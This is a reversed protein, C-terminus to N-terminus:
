NPGTGDEVIGATEELLQAYADSWDSVTYRGRLSVRGAHGIRHRLEADRILKSLMNVWEEDDEALFGNEDQRIIERSVGVPSAVSAVSASMYQLLKFACKGRTWVDDALPM